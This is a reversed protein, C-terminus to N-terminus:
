TFHACYARYSFYIWYIVEEAAEYKWLRIGATVIGRVYSEVEAEDHQLIEDLEAETLAYWAASKFIRLRDASHAAEFSVDYGFLTFAIIGTARGLEILKGGLKNKNEANRYRSNYKRNVKNAGFSPRGCPSLLEGHKGLRVPTPEEEGDGDSEVVPRQRKPATPRVFLWFFILLCLM